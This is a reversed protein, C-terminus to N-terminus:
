EDKKEKETNYIFEPMNWEQFMEETLQRAEIEHPKDMYSANTVDINNYVKLNSEM